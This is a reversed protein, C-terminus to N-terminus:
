PIAAPVLSSCCRLVGNCGTSPLKDVDNVYSGVWDPALALRAVLAARGEQTTEFPQLYLDNNVLEPTVRLLADLRLAAVRMDGLQLARGLWYAQTFQIRWGLQAAVLMAKEAGPEDGQALRAAGFMATSGPDVPATDIM